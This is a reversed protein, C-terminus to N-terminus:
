KPPPPVVLGRKKLEPAITPKIEEFVQAAWGNAYQLVEKTMAPGSSLLKKGVPGQYFALIQRLEDESFHNAVIVAQQQDLAAQRKQVAPLLSEKAYAEIAKQKGKNAELIKQAIQQVLSMVIQQPVVQLRLIAIVTKANALAQPSVAAASAVPAAPAPAPATQAQAAATLLLPMILILSRFCRKL